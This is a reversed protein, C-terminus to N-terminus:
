RTPLYSIIDTYQGDVSTICGYSTLKGHILEGELRFWAVRCRRNRRNKEIVIGVSLQVPISSSHVGLGLVPRPRYSKNQRELRSM